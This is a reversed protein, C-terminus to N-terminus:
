MHSSGSCSAVPLIWAVLFRHRTDVAKVISRQYANTALLAQENGNSTNRLMSLCRRISIRLMLYAAPLGHGIGLATPFRTPLTSAPHEFGSAPSLVPSWVQCPISPKLRYRDM